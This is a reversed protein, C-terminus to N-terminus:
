ESWSIVNLNPWINRWRNLKSLYIEETIQKKNPRIIMTLLDDLGFPAYTVLNGSKDQTVGISTATVPWSDIASETSTYPEIDYGFHRKYWLHVRAENRIEVPIPVDNFIGKGKQIYEDEKEYSLDPDFYVLDIDKIGRELEFGHRYNWITQAVPGGGLYWNPFEIASAKDLVRTILGSLRLIYRFEEEHTM